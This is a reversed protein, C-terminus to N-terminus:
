FSFNRSFAFSISLSVGHYCHVLVNGHHIGEKVFKNSKEFHSLLDENVMDAVNVQLIAMNPFASTVVQPLPVLDVSLIHSLELKSLLDLDTAARKDGLYLGPIIENVNDAMMKVPFFIM